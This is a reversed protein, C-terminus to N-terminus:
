AADRAEHTVPPSPQVAPATTGAVRARGSGSDGSTEIEEGADDEFPPWGDAERGCRDEHDRDVRSLRIGCTGCRADPDRRSTVVV